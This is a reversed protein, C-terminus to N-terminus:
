SKNSKVYARILALSLSVSLCIINYELKSKCHQQQQQRQILIHKFSSSFKSTQIFMVIQCFIPLVIILRFIDFWILCHIRLNSCCIETIMETIMETPVENKGFAHKILVSLNKPLRSSVWTMLYVDLLFPCGQRAELMLLTTLQKLPCM